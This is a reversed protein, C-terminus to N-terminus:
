CLYTQGIIRVYVNKHRLPTCLDELASFKVDYPATMQNFESLVLSRIKPCALFARTITHISEDMLLEDGDESEQVFSEGSYEFYIRNLEPNAAALKQLEQSPLVKSYLDFERLSHVSQALTDCASAVTEFSGEDDGDFDLSVEELKLKPHALLARLIQATGVDTNEFYLHRINVCAKAASQFECSPHFASDFRLDYACAGLARLAEAPAGSCIPTTIAARPCSDTLTALVEPHPPERMLLTVRRINEGYLALARALCMGIRDTACFVSIDSIYPCLTTMESLCQIVAGSSEGTPDLKRYKLKQLTPGLSAWMARWDGGFVKFISLERLGKCHRSIADVDSVTLQM